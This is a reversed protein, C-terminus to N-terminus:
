VILEAFRQKLAAQISLAVKDITQDSDVVSFREPYTEALKIYSNSVREFFELEELEFRDKDGRKTVRSMGKKIDGTLLITMNPSFDDLM